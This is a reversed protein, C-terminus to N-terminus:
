RAARRTLVVAAAVLALGVALIGVLPGLRADFLEAVALPVSVFVGGVGVAAVWPRRARVGAVVLAAAGLSGVVLWAARGSQAFLPGVVVALAGLVWGPEAPAWIGGARAPSRGAGAAPEDNGGPASEHLRQAPPLASAALWALGFGWLLPGGWDFAGDGIRDLATLLTAAAAVFTAIHQLVAPRWWWLVAAAVLAAGAAVLAATGPAVDALGDAWVGATGAVAVVAAAWLFGGLRGPAGARGALSAGGVLGAVAVAALLSVRPWPGLEAWLEAGLFLAAVVALAGGVYGLVEALVAGRRAAPRADLAAVAAVQDTNLIGAAVARDLLERLSPAPVPM